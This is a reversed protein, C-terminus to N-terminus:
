PPMAAVAAAADAAAAIRLYDCRPFADAFMSHCPSSHCALPPMLLMLPSLMFLMTFMSFMHYCCRCRTYRCLAAHFADDLSFSRCAHFHPTLLIMQGDAHCRSFGHHRCSFFFFFILTAYCCCRCAYRLEAAYPPMAAIHMALRMAAAFISLTAYSPQRSPTDFRLRFLEYRRAPPTLM